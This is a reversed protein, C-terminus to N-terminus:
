PHSLEYRTAKNGFTSEIVLDTKSLSKISWTEPTSSASFVLKISKQEATEFSWTGKFPSAGTAVLTFNGDDFFRYVLKSKIAFHEPDDVGNTLVKKVNWQDAVLDAKKDVTTNGPNNTAPTTTEDKKCASFTLTLMALVVLSKLLSQKM